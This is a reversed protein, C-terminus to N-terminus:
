PITHQSLFLKASVMTIPTSTFKYQFWCKPGNINKHNQIDNEKYRLISLIEFFIVNLVQCFEEIGLKHM